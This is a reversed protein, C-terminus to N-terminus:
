DLYAPFKPLAMMAWAPTKSKMENVITVQARVIEAAYNLGFDIPRSDSQRQRPLPANKRDHRLGGHLVM